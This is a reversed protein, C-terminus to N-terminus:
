VNKIWNITSNDLAVVDIRIATMNPNLGNDLLFHEFAAKMHKLKRKDVMEVAHGYRNNSRYKVEICVWVNGDRMILDVEGQRCQYNTTVPTLGQQQLYKQAQREAKQGILRSLM